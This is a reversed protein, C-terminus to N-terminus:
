QKGQAILRAQRRSIRRAAKEIEAGLLKGFASLIRDKTAEWAPRVFPQPPVQGVFKGSKKQYRPATGFEVLHAKRDSSGVFIEAEDKTPRRRGRRQRSSLQSGISISKALNGTAGKPAISRAYSAMPEASKRLADRMAKRVDKDSGLAELQQALEKWGDIRLNLM